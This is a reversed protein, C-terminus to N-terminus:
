VVLGVIALAAGWGSRSQNGASCACGADTGASGSSASPRSKCTQTEDCITGGSCDLVSNCSTRCTGNSQCRYPSCDKTTGDALTITHDGDCTATAVCTATALKCGFGSACDANDSCSTKCALPGCAYAGCDVPADTVCSGQADCHSAAQAHG